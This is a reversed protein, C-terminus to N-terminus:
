CKTKIKNRQLSRPTGLANEYISLFALILLIKANREQEFVHFLFVLKEKTIEMLELVGCPTVEKYLGCSQISTETEVVFKRGATNEKLM